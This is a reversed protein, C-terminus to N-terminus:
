RGPEYGVCEPVVPPPIARPSQQPGLSTMSSTENALIARKPQM